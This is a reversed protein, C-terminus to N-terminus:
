KAGNSSLMLAMLEENTLQGFKSIRKTDGLKCWQEYTLIENSEIAFYTKVNAVFDRYAVKSILELRDISM